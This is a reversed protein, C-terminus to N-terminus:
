VIILELLLIIMIITANNDGDNFCNTRAVFNIKNCSNWSSWTPWWQESEGPSLVRQREVGKPEARCGSESESEIREWEGGGTKGGEPWGANCGEVDVRAEDRRRRGGQAALSLPGQDLASDVRKAVEAQSRAWGRSEVAARENRGKGESKCERRRRRRQRRRRRSRRVDGCGLGWRSSVDVRSVEYRNASVDSSLAVSFWGRARAKKKSWWQFKLSVRFVPLLEKLEFYIMPSNVALM